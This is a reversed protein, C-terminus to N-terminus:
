LPPLGGRRAPVRVLDILMVRREIPVEGAAPARYGAGVALISKDGDLWPRVRPFVVVIGPPRGVDMERQKALREERAQDRLHVEGPIRKQREIRNEVANGIFTGAAM